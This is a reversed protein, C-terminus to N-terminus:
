TAEGDAHGAQAASEHPSLMESSPDFRTLNAM